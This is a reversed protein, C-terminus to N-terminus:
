EEESTAEGDPEQPAIPPAPLVPTEIPMVVVGNVVVLPIVRSAPRKIAAVSEISAFRRAASVVTGLSRWLRESAVALGSTAIGLRAVLAINAGVGEAVVAM